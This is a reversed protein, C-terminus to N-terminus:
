VRRHWMILILLEGCCVDGFSEGDRESQCISTETKTHKSHKTQQAHSILKRAFFFLLVFTPCKEGTGFDSRLFVRRRTTHALHTQLSIAPTLSRRGRQVSVFVHLPENSVISLFYTVFSHWQAFLGHAAGRYTSAGQSSSAAELLLFFLVFVNRAKLQISIVVLGVFSFDAPDLSINMGAGEILVTVVVVRFM